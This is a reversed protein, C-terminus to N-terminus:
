AGQIPAIPGSNSQGQLAYRESELLKRAERTAAFQEHVELRDYASVHWQLVTLATRLREVPVYHDVRDGSAITLPPLPYPEAHPPVTDDRILPGTITGVERLPVSKYDDDRIHENM